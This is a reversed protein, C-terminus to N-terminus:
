PPCQQSSAPHVNPRVEGMKQITASHSPRRQAALRIQLLAVLDRRCGIVERLQQPMEAPDPSGFLRCCSYHARKLRKKGGEFHEARDESGGRSENM